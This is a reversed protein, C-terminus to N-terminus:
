TRVAMYIEADRDQIQAQLYAAVHEHELTVPVAVASDIVVYTRHHTEAHDTAHIHRIQYRKIFM